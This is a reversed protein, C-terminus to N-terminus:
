SCFGGIIILTIARSRWIFFPKGAINKSYLSTNSEYKMCLYIIMLFLDLEIVSLIWWNNNSNHGKIETHFITVNNLVM